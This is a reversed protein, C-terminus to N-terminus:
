PQMELVLCSFDPGPLHTVGAHQMWAHIPSGHVLLRMFVTLTSAYLAFFWKSRCSVFLRLFRRRGSLSAAKMLASPGRCVM